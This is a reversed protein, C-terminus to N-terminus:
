VDNISISFSNEFSLGGADTTRIRLSYGSKAEFNFSEKTKLENGVIEFSENNSAGAGSVLSYTHTDNADADTSSLNALTTGIASNENISNASLSIATPVENVDNISISFSNEFSLGGADITRLRISYSSKKEFDFLEKVKLENGVVEFSANNTDDSGAVLSYSHTDNADVDISSLNALVSGVLSNEDISVASLVIATPDSNLSNVLITFSNEFSLLGSDTSRIRISYTSKAKYIFVEKVKLEGAVIEFSSNDTDGSGSVLTYSHTDNADSDTSTINALATGIASKENISNASLAIATPAENLDNVSITFTNEYSLSDSDTTRIRISYSSKTEFDFSEKLKLENAVIEFSTNDTDGNGAVLTYTHTNNADVDTSSLNALVTGIASNENITNTSLAIAIPAENVDNVTILYSKEFSANLADTSRLRISYTKKTEFDFNEKVILEDGRIEFSTNDTDGKGSVLSYTHSDNADSDGSTLVALTTGLTSNEDVVKTSLGIYFAPSNPVYIVPLVNSYAIGCTGNVVVARYDTNWNVYNYELSDTNNIIDNWFLGGNTSSQWKVVQGTYGTLTLLGFMSNTTAIHKNTISGGVPAQGAQVIIPYAPSFVESGCGQTQVVARYYFTGQIDAVKSLVNTTNSIDTWINQDSSVQWKIVDGQNGSLTLELNGGVCVTSNEAKINGSIAPNVSVIVSSTNIEGNDCVITARYYTTESINQVLYTSTTNVIPIGATYFNDLSYEWRVIAGTNNVLTLQTSNVGGCVTVGGGSISGTNSGAVKLERTYNLVSTNDDGNLGGYEVLLGVNYNVNALDNWAGGGFYHLYSEGGLDNPEGASWNSYQGPLKVVNPTNGESIQTGSEPGTVWYYKGESEANSSYVSRGLSKNIEEFNDSGGLWTDRTTLFKSIFNNEEQSNVTALYGKKGFYSRNSATEKSNTWSYGWSIYEYWHKTLPNYLKDGLNFTIFRQEPYCLANTSKIAIKRLVSQWVTSTGLGNIHLLGKDSDYNLNFGDPLAGQYQLIDGLAGSVYGGTIQVKAASIIGESTVVLTSDIITSTFKPINNVSNAGSITAKSADTLFTFGNLFGSKKPNSVGVSGSAGNPVYAIIKNDSEVTLNWVQEGGFNVKTAGLFNSGLIEIKENSRAQTPSFSTIIPTRYNYTFDSSSINLCKGWILIKGESGFAAIATIQTPSDITFSQVPIGGISVKTIENLNTGKITIKTGAEGSTPSFSNITALGQCSTRQYSFGGAGGQTWSLMKVYFYVKEAPIYVLFTEGVQSPPRREFASYWSQFNLAKIEATTLSDSPVKAWLTGIPSNNRYNEESAINFLGGGNTGRTIIVSSTIFDQNSSLKPDENDLKTFTIYPGSFISGFSSDPCGNLDAFLNKPTDPCQDLFDAVGDLDADLYKLNLSNNKQIIAAINNGSDYISNAVPVVKLVEAGSALGNIQIGLTIANSTVSISSPTTSALTANGGTLGFQFDNVDLTGASHLGSFVPKSMTVIITNNEQDQQVSTIFNDLYNNSIAIPNGTWNNENNLFTNNTITTKLDNNPSGTFIVTGNNGEFINNDFLFNNPGLTQIWSNTNDHTLWSSYSFLTSANNTFKSNLVQLRNVGRFSGIGSLNGVFECEDIKVFRETSFLQGSNNLFKSKLVTIRNTYAEDPETGAPTNGHDSYFLLASNNSFESNTITLYSGGDRTCFITSINNETVLIDDATAKARNAYILSGTGWESSGLQSFTISSISFEIYSNLIFMQYTNNGSIKIKERGPGKINLDAAIRPLNSTLTIVGNLSPDFDVVSSDANSNAQEIAWRLTGASGGDELSTVTIKQVYTYAGIDTSGRTFGRQDLGSIPAANIVTLDGANIAKSGSGLAMTFTSGGNDQLSGLLPDGTLAGSVSGDEVLNKINTAPATGSFDLGVSNAIITNKLSLTNSNYIGPTNGSFTSNVIESTVSGYTYIAGGGSQGSNASFTTNSIVLPTSANFLGGGQIAATNGSITSNSINILSGGNSYIAGGQIDSYNESITCNKIYLQGRNYIAGGQGSYKAGSISLGSISLNGNLPIYFINFDRSLDGNNGSITLKNAGPGKISINGGASTTALNPLASQLTITAPGATFLAPDFIIDEDSSTANAQLIAWRLTGAGGSDELSTVTFDQASVTSGFFFLFLFYINKM